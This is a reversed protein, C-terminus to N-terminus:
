KSSVIALGGWKTICFRRSVLPGRRRRVHSVDKSNSRVATPAPDCRIAGAHGLVRWPPVEAALKGMQGM